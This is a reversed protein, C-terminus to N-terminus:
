EATSTSRAICQMMFAIVQAITLTSSDVIIADAAPRLPSLARVSDDHDRQEIQALLEQYDILQGKEQLQKQRRAARQAASADLFFKHRATPFVVTGTDRGEAVVGGQRGLERQLHVLKERVLGLASVRSAAMGMEPTRIARSIDEGNLLVRTDDDGGPLLQLEIAALLAILGAQDDLNLGLRQVQYGVARYMAGTDLYTYGLAAALLRSITSKGAGSPGDITVIEGKAGM